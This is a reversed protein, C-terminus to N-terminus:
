RNELRTLGGRLRRLAEDKGLLVAIEIAGGPTSLRGSMAIRVPWLLQGNKMELKEPLALLCDHVGQESWDALGELAEISASLAPLSSELTSKSKKNVFADLEYDDPKVLFDVMAPLADFRETRPQLLTSLLNRDYKGEGLAGDLWPNAAQIYDEPSMRRIYEANFWTLKEMDFIAPSKSLGQMTFAEILGDRSFFEQNTGPNWGVLVIYNLIADVLYGMAILDEFTPDGHRKSLKRTHDKMVPTLHCYLPQDWGFAQYLLTYKPTSSLFETGRLIHTIQMLHDDIVNAFNYTPLGDAKILVGDDLQACEVEVSGYLADEFTVSGELPINQRIVHPVGAAVRRKAEELPVNHLCHKDYKFTEGRAEVEARRQDLEEKTCFCYYANGKEALREAYPRYLHKRESQIYPAFEGGVGPGEDWVIGATRLADYIRDTADKVERVQDTDEIRLIFTGKEHRAFLYAYLATRLNGIHMYGTPSPAFRTRVKGTQSM